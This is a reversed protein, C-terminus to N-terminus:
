HSSNLRTSKRDANGMFGVLKARALDHRAQFAPSDAAGFTPSARVVTELNSLRERPLPHSITYPDVSQTKFLSENQFREMTTLLGKGSQGTATLYKVAARDAAEEQGRVYSLLSRRVMEQPGMIMGYAGATDMGVNSGPRNARQTAVMAGAGALMGISRFLM